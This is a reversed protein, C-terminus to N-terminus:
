RRVMMVIVPLGDVTYTGWGSVQKDDAEVNCWHGNLLAETKPFKLQKMEEHSEQNRRRSEEKPDAAVRQRSSHASDGRAMGVHHRREQLM